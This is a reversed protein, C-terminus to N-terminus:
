YESFWKKVVSQPNNVKYRTAYPFAIHPQFQVVDLSPYVVLEQGMSNGPDIRLYPHLDFTMSFNYAKFVFNSSQRRMFKSLTEFDHLVNHHRVALRLSILKSQQEWHYLIKFFNKPLFTTHYELYNLNPLYDLSSEFNFMSHVNILKSQQEWHYLIKFFNKPLFTTHYELYNLNPLYDLSSEFNFMSHVDEFKASEIKETCFLEIDGEELNSFKIKLDDHDFIFNNKLSLLSGSEKTDFDHILVEKRIVYVDSQNIKVPKMLATLEPNEIRLSQIFFLNPIKQSLTSFRQFYKSSKYCSHRITPPMIQIFRRQLVVDITAFNADPLSDPDPKRFLRRKENITKRVEEQSNNPVTTVVLSVDKSIESFCNEIKFIKPFSNLAM